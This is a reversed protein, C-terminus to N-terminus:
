SGRLSKSQDANRYSLGAIRTTNPELQTADAFQCAPHELKQSDHIMISNYM